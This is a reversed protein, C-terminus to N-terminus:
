FTPANIFRKITDTVLNEKIQYWSIGTQLRYIEFRIFAQISLFIHGMQIERRKSQCSEAECCQKIGRHYEEIKWGKGKIHKWQEQTMEIVNTAWYDVEKDKHIYKFVKILGYGRMHVILGSTPIDITCIQSYKSDWQKVLRNSKLRTLFNWELRIIMKLNEVTAYWSDFLILDPKFGIDAASNLM